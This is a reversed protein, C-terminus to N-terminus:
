NQIRRQYSDFILDMFGNCYLRIAGCYTGYTNGCYMMSTHPCAMMFTLFFATKLFISVDNYKNDIQKANLLLKLFQCNQIFAPLFCENSKLFTQYLYLNIIDDEDTIINPYFHKNLKQEQIKNDISNKNIPKHVAYLANQCHLMTGDYRIKLSISNYGCGFHRSLEKLVLLNKQDKIYYLSNIENLLSLIKEEIYLPIKNAYYDVMKMGINFKKNRSVNDCQKIFSYLLQGDLISANLPTELGPWFPKILVKENKNTLLFSNYLNEFDQLFIKLLNNNKEDAYFEFTEKDIVNHLHIEITLLNLDIQNLENLIKYINNLVITPEVGRHAKTQYKGDFSFQIVLTCSDSLINNLFQVFHVISDSYAVGNTSFFIHNINPCLEQYMKQFMTEFEKLTLTPEQGWLDISKINNPNINLRKFATKLTNLYQGNILSEKVKKAEIQHQKKDLHQDIECYSCQLNCSESTYLTLSNCLEMSYKIM